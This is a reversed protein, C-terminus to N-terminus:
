ATEPPRQVTFLLALEPGGVDVVQLGAEEAWEVIDRDDFVPLDPAHTHQFYRYVPDAARRFTFGTFRAGARLCRAVELFAARPDPMLQLAAWCSAGGLTRDAFPLAQGTGRVFTVDPCARRSIALMAFSLDLGIVQGQAAREAVTKTRRGTGCALDLVPGTGLTTSPGDAAGLFTRLYAHEAAEDFSSTWLRAMLRVFHPRITTEYVATQLPSEMIAQGYTREPALHPAFDLVGERVPYSTSCASCAAGKERWELSGHCRPCALTQELDERTM